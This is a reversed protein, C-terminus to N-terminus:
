KKNSSQNNKNDNKQTTTTVISTKNISRQTDTVISAKRSSENLIEPKKSM